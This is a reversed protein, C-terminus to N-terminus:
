QNAAKLNRRCWGVFLAVACWFGGVWGWFAGIYATHVAVHTSDSWWREGFLSAVFWFLALSVAMAVGLGIWGFWRSFILTAVLPAWLLFLRSFNPLDDM